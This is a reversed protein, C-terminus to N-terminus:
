SARRIFYGGVFALAAGPIVLLYAWFPPGHRGSWFGPYAAAALWLGFLLLPLGLLLAVWERAQSRNPDRDRKPSEDM